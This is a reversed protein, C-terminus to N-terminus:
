SWAYGVKIIINLCCVRLQKVGFTEFKKSLNELQPATGRKKKTWV